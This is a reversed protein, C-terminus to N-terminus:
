PNFGAVDYSDVTMRYAAGVAVVLILGAAHLEQSLEQCLVVFNGRDEPIGERKNPYEWDLSLGKFGYTQLFPVVSSVFQQRKESSAAM